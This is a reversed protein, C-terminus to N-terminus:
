FIIVVEPSLRYNHREVYKYVFIHYWFNKGIFNSNNTNNNNDDDDDHNNYTIIIIIKNNYITLYIPLYISLNVSLCLDLCVYLCVSLCVSVVSLRFFWDGAKSLFGIWVM